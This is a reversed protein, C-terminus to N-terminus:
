RKPPGGLAQLGQRRQLLTADDLPRVKGGADLEARATVQAWLKLRRVDDGLPAPVMVQWVSGAADGVLLAQGDPSLALSVVDAAHVQPPGIPQRTATDWLRVAKGAATAILRGDASMAVARVPGDHALPQGLPKRDPGWLRATHDEHGTLVIRADPGLAVALVPSEPNFLKTAGERQGGESLWVGQGCIGCMMPQGGAAATMALVDGPAESADDVLKGTASEIRRLVAGNAVLWEKGGAGFGVAGVKGEAPPVDGVAKGGDFPWATASGDEGGALVVKGGPGFALATGAGKQRFLLQPPAQPRGWAALNARFLRQRNTDNGSQELGRAFWLLGENVQGKGCAKLGAELLPTTPHPQGARLLDQVRPDAKRRGREAVVRAEEAEARAVEAQERAEEEAMLAAMRARQAQRAMFLTVGGGALLLLLVVVILGLVAVDNDSRGPRRLPPSFM